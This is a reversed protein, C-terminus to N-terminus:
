QIKKNAILTIKLRFIRFLFFKNKSRSFLSNKYIFQEQLYLWDFIISLLTHLNPEKVLQRCLSFSSIRLSFSFNILQSRFLSFSQATLWYYFQHYNETEAEMSRLRRFNYSHHDYTCSVSIPRNDSPAFYKRRM